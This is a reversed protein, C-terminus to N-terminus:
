MKYTFLVWVKMEPSLLSLHSTLLSKLSKRDIFYRRSTDDIFSTTPVCWEDSLCFHIDLCDFHCLYSIVTQLWSISQLFWFVFSFCSTGQGLFVEQVKHPNWSKRSPAWSRKKSTQAPYYQCTIVDTGQFVPPILLPLFVCATWPYLVNDKM